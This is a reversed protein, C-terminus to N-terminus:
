ECIKKKAKEKVGFSILSIALAIGGWFIVMDVIFWKWGVWMKEEGFIIRVVWPSDVLARGLGDYREGSDFRSVFYALFALVFLTIILIVGIGTSIKKIPHM